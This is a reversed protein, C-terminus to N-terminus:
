PNRDLSPNRERADQEATMPEDYQSKSKTFWTSKRKPLQLMLGRIFENQGEIAKAKANLAIIYANHSTFQSRTMQNGEEKLTELFEKAAVIQETLTM